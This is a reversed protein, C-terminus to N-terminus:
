NGSISIGKLKIAVPCLARTMIAREKSRLMSARLEPVSGSISGGTVPIRKEGDFYYALRIEAGFSGTVNDLRFDSFMVPELYPEAHMAALSTRGPSVSFLQFSGKRPQGLWDAHRVSGVLAKLVGQEIVLARELPYGDPDFADSEPIGQLIPEAWLDLPDAVAEGDGSRQVNAGLEFASAKSFVASTTAGFFFWGFFDEAEKGRLIVPIDKLDPLPTAVARDRVQELRTGTAASLRQVDLDSFAIDDFLEVPGGAAKAELVFESYGHWGQSTFAAGRSNQFSKREHTLFLELANIRSVPSAPSLLASAASKEPAYLADRVTAARTADSLAEFGSRPLEVKAAAAGPLEFWPNKSKSAAFAAQRVKAAVDEPSCSPQISVTADGRFKRGDTESDVYVALSYSATDVSRAQEMAEHIFYREERSIVTEVLRWDAIKVGGNSGNESNFAEIAALITNKMTDKITDKMM